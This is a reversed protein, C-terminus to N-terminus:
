VLLDGGHRTREGKKGDSCEETEGGGGGGWGCGRLHVILRLRKATREREASPRCEHLDADAGRAVVREVAGGEGEHATRTVLNREVLLADKLHAGDRGDVM